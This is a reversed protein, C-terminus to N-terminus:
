VESSTKEIISTIEEVTNGSKPRTIKFLRIAGALKLLRYKDGNPTKDGLYFPALFLCSLTNMYRTIGTVEEIKVENVSDSAELVFLAAAKVPTSCFDEDNIYSYKDRSENIYLLKEPNFAKAVDSCVKQLNCCPILEFDNEPSVIATDDSLFRHGRKILSLATTSKGSGSTGSVLIGKGFMNLATCHLVSYGRQTFLFALCWGYIFSVVDVDEAEITREILIENGNRIVARGFFSRMSAFSEDFYFDCDETLRDEFDIKGVRIYAEAPGFVQELNYILIESEFIVNYINYKYM